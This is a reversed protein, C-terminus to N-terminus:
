AFLCMGNLIGISICHVRYHIKYLSRTAISIACDSMRSDLTSDLTKLITSSFSWTIFAIWPYSERVVPWTKDHLSFTLLENVRLTGGWIFNLLSWMILARHSYTTIIWITYINRRIEPPDDPLNSTNAGQGKQCNYAHTLNGGGRNQCCISLVRNKLSHLALDQIHVKM